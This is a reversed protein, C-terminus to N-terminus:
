RRVGENEVTHNILNARWQDHKVIGEIVDEVPRASNAYQVHYDVAAGSIPEIAAGHSNKHLLTVRDRTYDFKWSAIDTEIQVSHGDFTPRLGASECAAIVRQRRIETKLEPTLETPTTTGMMREYMMIEAVAEDITCQRKSYFAIPFIAGPAASARLKLRVKVRYLRM